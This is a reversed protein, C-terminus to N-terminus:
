KKIEKKAAPKKKAEPKTEDRKVLKLNSVNVGIHIDRKSGKPNYASARVHRERTGIGELMAKGETPVVKVVKAETGKNSGSIVKVLDGKRIHIKM